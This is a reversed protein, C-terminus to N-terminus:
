ATVEGEAPWTVPDSVEVTVTAGYRRFLDARRRATAPTLCLRNAPWRFEPGEQEPIYPGPEPEWGRPEWGRDLSGPPYEVVLRYVRTAAARKRPSAPALRSVPLDNTM